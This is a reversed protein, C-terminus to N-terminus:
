HQWQLFYINMDLISRRVLKYTNNAIFVEDKLSIEDADTSNINNIPNTNQQESM